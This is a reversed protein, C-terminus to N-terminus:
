AAAARRSPAAQVAQRPLGFFRRRRANGALANATIAVVPVDRPTQPMGVQAPDRLRRVAEFGNMEPMQCDMMVLSFRERALAELAERGNGAIAVDCGLSTLMARAVEQNVPNDEVLLVRLSPSALVAAPLRAAGGAAAGEDGSAAARLAAAFLDSLVNVLEQQRM